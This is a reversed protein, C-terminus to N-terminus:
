LTRMMRKLTAVHRRSVSLPQPLERLHIFSHGQEDRSLSEIADRRVLANRHIRVFHRAHNEELTKLSDDILVEGHRHHVTVYKNDAMFFLVDDLPILELGRVTRAAIHGSEQRLTAERHNLWALQARNLRSARQLAQVLAGPSVPKLLYGVAQVAFAALAHQDHNTCFIVAPPQEMTSIHRAAELGNMTPMPIDMLVIDPQYQQCLDVADRGNDAESALETFQGFQDIIQRLQQRAQPDNDVILIKMPEDM